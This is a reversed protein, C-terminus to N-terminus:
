TKKSRQLRSKMLSNLLDLSFRIINFKSSSFDINKLIGFFWSKAALILMIEVNPLRLISYFRYIRLSSLFDDFYSKLFSIRLFHVKQFGFRHKKREFIIPIQLCRLRSFMLSGQIIFSLLNTSNLEDALCWYFGDFNPWWLYCTEIREM